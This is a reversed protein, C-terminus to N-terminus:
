SFFPYPAGATVWAEMDNLTTGSMYPKFKATYSELSGEVFTYTKDSAYVVSNLAGYNDNLVQDNTGFVLKVTDSQKTAVSSSADSIMTGYRPAPAVLPSIFNNQLGGTSGIWFCFLLLATCLLM